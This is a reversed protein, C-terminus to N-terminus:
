VQVVKNRDHTEEAPAASLFEVSGSPRRAPGEALVAALHSGAPLEKEEESIAEAGM